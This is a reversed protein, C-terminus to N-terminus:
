EPSLPQAACMLRPALTASRAASHHDQKTWVAKEANLGSPNVASGEEAQGLRLDGPLPVYGANTISCSGIRRHITPIAPRAKVAATRQHPTVTLQNLQSVGTNATKARNEVARSPCM